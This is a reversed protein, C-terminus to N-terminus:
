VCDPLFSPKPHLLHFYLYVATHQSRVYKDYFLFEVDIGALKALAEIEPRRFTEHAQAFRILYEMRFTFAAADPQQNKKKSLSRYKREFNSSQKTYTPNERCHSSNPTKERTFILTYKKSPKERGAPLRHVVLMTLNWTNMGCWGFHNVLLM